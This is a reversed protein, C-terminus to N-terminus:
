WLVPLGEFGRNEDEWGRETEKQIARLLIYGWFWWFIFFSM